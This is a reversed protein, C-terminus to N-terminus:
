NNKNKNKGNFRWLYLAGTYTYALISKNDEVFLASFFAHKNGTM